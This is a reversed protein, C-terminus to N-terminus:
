VIDDDSNDSDTTHINELKYVFSPLIYKYLGDYFKNNDKQSMRLKYKLGSKLNVKDIFFTLNLKEKIIQSLMLNDAFSFSHTCLEVGYYTYDGYPKHYHKTFRTGDDMYLIALTEWDLLKLYHPDLCKYGNPYMRHRFKTFTPHRKSVLRYYPKTIFEKGNISNSQTEHRKITCGTINKIIDEAFEIFDLNKETKTTQFWANSNVESKDVYVGGDGLIFAHIYKYLELNNM